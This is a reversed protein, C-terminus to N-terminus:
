VMTCVVTSIIPFPRIRAMTTGDLEVLGVRNTAAQQQWQGRGGGLPAAEIEM